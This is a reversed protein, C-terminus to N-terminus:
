PSGAPGATAADTKAGAEPAEREAGTDAVILRGVRNRLLDRYEDSIGDDTILITVDEVQALHHRTVRDFKSSDLLLVREVSNAFMARKIPVAEDSNCTVGLTGHVGWAGFFFKNIRYRQLVPIADPGSLISSARHFEGGTLIVRSNLLPLVAEFINLSYCLITRPDDDGLFETVAQVTSGSDLLIVDHPQVLKAAERAIALKGPRNRDREHSLLYPGIDNEPKAPTVGGYVMRVKNDAALRRVDRRMTMESVGCQRALEAIGMFGNRRLLLLEKEMSNLELFVHVGGDDNYRVFILRDNELHGVM